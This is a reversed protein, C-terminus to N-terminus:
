QLIVNGTINLIKGPKVTIKGGQMIILDGNYTCQGTPPDIIVEMGNSIINSPIMNYLWNAPIGWDGSGIFNYDLSSVIFAPSNFSTVSDRTLMFPGSGSAATRAVADHYVDICNPPPPCAKCHSIYSNSRDFGTQEESLNWQITLNINSAGASAQSVFWTRNVTGGTIQTGTTDVTSFVGQRVRVRFSDTSSINNSITVPTYSSISNGVPFLIVSDGVYRTLTGLNNTIIFNTSDAGVLNADGMNLSFSDLRITANNSLTISSTTTNGTLFMQRNSIALPTTLLGSSSLAEPSGNSFSVTGTGDLTGSNSLGGAINLIGSQITLTGNAQIIINGNYTCQGGAIPNIFVTMGGSITNSPVLNNLWNSANNWDGNGTFTYANSLKWLDNFGGWGAVANIGEGGFLWLNGSIDAWSLSGLRNGPKNVPSAIARIGYIGDQYVTSDGKVWTWQNIGPDYKWLDNTTGLVGSGGLLWLNGSLDIWAVSFERAGPKNNATTIGQTGYVGLQNISSDGKMWTWQNSGLDYKWLDNLSTFNDVGNGGFLWFNGSHDTWSVSGHRGEPKNAAATIEQTGYVGFQDITSDGKMWTWENGIPDYKWLDNLEGFLSAHTSYGGGGFLWLNGSLDTWSSSWSRAGPNNTASAIGKTGYVGVIDRSSDWASDGRIWTWENNIPDYKWLDSLPSYGNFNDGTGGFLWFNGSHDTWSISRSRASPTNATAGIGQIGYIGHQNGTSDGKMWTWQNNSINYKWLDNLQVDGTITGDGGFLWLNGSLDIWSSSSGRAGPKNAAGAVGRTGYVGVVNSLSDGKMWTWQSNTNIQANSRISLAVCIVFFFTKM